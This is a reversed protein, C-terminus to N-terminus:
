NVVTYLVRERFHFDPNALEDLSMTKHGAVAEDEDGSWCGFLEVEPNQELLSRLVSALQTHNEAQEDDPEGLMSEEPWGGNQYMVHGFGCGCGQSSGVYKVNPRDFKGKVPLAFENLETTHVARRNEDWPIAPIPSTAAIYLVFCM